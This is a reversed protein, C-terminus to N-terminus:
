KIHKWMIKESKAYSGTKKLCETRAKSVAKVEEWDTTGYMRMRNAKIQNDLKEKEGEPDKEWAKLEEINKEVQKLFEEAYYWETDGMLDYHCDNIMNKLDELKQLRTKM